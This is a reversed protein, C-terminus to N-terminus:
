MFFIKLVATMTATMASVSLVIATRGIWYNLRVKGNTEKVHKEIEILKDYIDKNTIRIFTTNNTM